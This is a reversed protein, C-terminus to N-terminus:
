PQRSARRRAAGLWLVGVLVVSAVTARVFAHQRGVRADDCTHAMRRLFADVDEDSRAGEVGVWVLTTTSSDPHLLAQMEATGNRPSVLTGCGDPSLPLVPTAAVGVLLVAVLLVVLHRGNAKM